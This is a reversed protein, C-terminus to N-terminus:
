ASPALLELSRNAADAPMGGFHTFFCLHRAGIKRYQDLGRGVDEVCGFLGTGREQMAGYLLGGDPPATGVLAGVVRAMAPAAIERARAASDAAHAFVVVVAEAEHTNRSLGEAHAELREGVEALNATAPSVLTLMSHGARGIERARDANLAAVYMPPPSQVPAVNLTGSSWRRQLEEFRTDFLEHRAEFEVGFGECELPRSGAGVGMNLRGSSVLDVLAYDEAVQTANRLPLVAVAPGLRIRETCQALASLL